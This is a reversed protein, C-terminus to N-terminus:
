RDSVPFVHLGHQDCYSGVDPPPPPRIDPVCEQKVRDRISGHRSHPCSASYRYTHNLDGWIAQYRQHHHQLHVQPAVISTAVSESNRIDSLKM